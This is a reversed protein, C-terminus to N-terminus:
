TGTWQITGRKLEDVSHHINGNHQLSLDDVDRDHRLQLNRQVGQWQSEGTATCQDPTRHGQRATGASEHSTTPSPRSGVTAARIRRAFNNSTRQSAWPRRLEDVTTFTGAIMRSLPFAGSEPGRSNQHVNWSAVSVPARSEVTAAINPERRM